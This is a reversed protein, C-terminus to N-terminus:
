KSIIGKLNDKIFMKNFMEADKDNNQDFNTIFKNVNNQNADQLKDSLDKDIFDLETPNYYYIDKWQNRLLNLRNQFKKNVAMYATIIEQPNRDFFPIMGITGGLRQEARAIDAVALRDKDKLTQALSYTALLELTELLAQAQITENASDLDDAKETIKNFISDMKEAAADEVEGYQSFAQFNQREQDALKLVAEKYDKSGTAQKFVEGVRLTLKTWGGFPGILDPNKSAIDVFTRTYLDGSKVAKYENILKAKNTINDQIPASGVVQGPEVTYRVTEGNNLQDYVIYSGDDTTSAPKPDSMEGNPLKFRIKLSPPAIKGTKKGSELLVKALDMEDKQRERELAIAMPIVNQGAQGLVDLFGTVGPQMTKGTLLNSALQLLLLRGSKDYGREGMIERAADMANTLNTMKGQKRAVSEVENFKKDAEKNAKNQLHVGLQANLNNSVPGQNETGQPEQPKMKTGGKEIVEAGTERDDVKAKETTGPVVSKSLNIEKRLQASSKPQRPMSGDDYIEPYPGELQGELRAREKVSEPIMQYGLYTLMPVATYPNRLGAATLTGKGMGKALNVYTKPNKIADIAAIGSQTLGKATFPSAPPGSLGGAQLKQVGKLYLKRQRLNAM